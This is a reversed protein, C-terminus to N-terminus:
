RTEELVESKSKQNHADGEYVASVSFANSCVIKRYDYDAWKGHCAPVTLVAMNSQVVVSIAESDADKKDSTFKFLVKGTPNNGAIRATFNVPINRRLPSNANAHLITTTPVRSIKPAPDLIDGILMDGDGFQTFTVQKLVTNSAVDLFVVRRAPEAPYHHLHEMFFVALVFKGNAFSTALKIAVHSDAFGIPILLVRTVAGSTADVELVPLRRAPDSSVPGSYTGLYLRSGDKNFALSTFEGVLFEAPIPTVVVTSIVGGAPDFVRFSKVPNSYVTGDNGLMYLRENAPNISLKSVVFAGTPIVKEISNSRANIVTIAPKGGTVGTGGTSAYLKHGHTDMALSTAFSDLTLTTIVARNATDLVALKGGSTLVFVKKGDPLVLMARIVDTPDISLAIQGTITNTVADIIKVGSHTAVYVKGTADNAVVEAIGTAPTDLPLTNITTYNAMDVVSVSNLFTDGLYAFPAAHAASIGALLLAGSIQRIGKKLRKSLRSLNASNSSLCISKTM